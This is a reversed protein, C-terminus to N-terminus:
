RFQTGPGKGRQTLWGAVAYDIFLFRGASKQEKVVVTSVRWEEEEKKELSRGRVSKTDYVM